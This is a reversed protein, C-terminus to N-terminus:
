TNTGVTNLYFVTWHYCNVTQKGIITWMGKQGMTRLRKFVSVTKYVLMHPVLLMSTCTKPWFINLKFMTLVEFWDLLTSFNKRESCAYILDEFPWIEKFFFIVIWFFALYLKLHYQVIFDSFFFTKLHKDWAAGRKLHVWTGWLCWHPSCM